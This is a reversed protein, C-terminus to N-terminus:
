LVSLEGAWARILPAPAHGAGQIIRLAGRAERALAPADLLRDADGVFASWGDPMGPEAARADLQELGWSLTEMSETGGQAAGLGARARFDACANEPDRHVRRSLAKLQARPVRGGRGAEAPFAWIPALLGVTPWREALWAREGLLLLTGLSYGLLADCAPLAELRARWDPAAPVCVHEAGPLVRAAEAAFWEAPVAWGLLWAIRM